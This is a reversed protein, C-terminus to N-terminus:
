TFDIDDQSYQGYKFYTACTGEFSVMCAGIPNEPTCVQAFLKCETPTKIGQLIEGCICQPHEKPPAVQVNFFKDADFNEFNERLRLGSEPIM